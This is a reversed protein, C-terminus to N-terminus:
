YKSSVVGEAAQRIATAFRIINRQGNEEALQELLYDYDKMFHRLNEFLQVTIVFDDVAHAQADIFVSYYTELLADRLQSTFGSDPHYAMGKGTYFQFLNEYAASGLLYIVLARRQEESLAEFDTRKPHTSM